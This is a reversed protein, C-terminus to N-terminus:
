AAPDGFDGPVYEIRESFWDWTKDDVKVTAFERIEKSLTERFEETSFKEGSFGIVSFENPLLNSAKLNYLAPILLRKTLDGGAGFIVMTFPDGIRVETGDDNSQNPM